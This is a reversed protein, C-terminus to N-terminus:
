LHSLVIINMSFRRLKKNFRRLSGGVIFNRGSTDVDCTGWLGMRRRRDEPLSRERNCGKASSRTNQNVYIILKNLM